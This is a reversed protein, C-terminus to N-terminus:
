KEYYKKMFLDLVIGVIYRGYKDQLKSIEKDYDHLEPTMNVYNIKHYITKLDNVNIEDRLIFLLNEKLEVYDKKIQANDKKLVNCLRKYYNEENM